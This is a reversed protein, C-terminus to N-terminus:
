LLKLVTRIYLVYVFDGRIIFLVRYVNKSKGYLLQRVEESFIKHEVALACRKPNEQLTTIRDM